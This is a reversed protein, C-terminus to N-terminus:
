QKIATTFENGAQWTTSVRSSSATTRRPRLIPKAHPNTCSSWRAHPTPQSAPQSGVSCRHAIMPWGREYITVVDATAKPFLRAAEAIAAKAHESQDYCVMIRQNTNPTM